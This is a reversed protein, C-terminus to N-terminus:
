LCLTIVVVFVIIITILIIIIIINVIVIVIIIIIVKVQYESSNSDLTVQAMKWDNGQDGSLSWVKRLSGTVPKNYVNLEGMSSGYMHYWFTLCRGGTPPFTRSILRAKEGEDIGSTEM